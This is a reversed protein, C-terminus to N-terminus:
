KLKALDSVATQLVDIQVEVSDGPALGLVDLIDQLVIIEGEGLEETPFGKAIGIQNELQSDGAIM